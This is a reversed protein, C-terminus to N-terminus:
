LIYTGTDKGMVICNESRNCSHVNFIGDSSIMKGEVSKWKRCVKANFFLKNVWYKFDISKKKENMGPMGPHGRSDVEM